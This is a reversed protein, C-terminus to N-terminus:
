CTSSDNRARGVAAAGAAAAAAAVLWAPAACALVRSFAGCVARSYIEQVLYPGTQGAGHTAHPHTEQVAAFLLSTAVRTLWCSCPPSKAQQKPSSQELHLVTQTRRGAAPSWAAPLMRCTGAPPCPKHLPRTNCRKGTITTHTTSTCVSTFPLAMLLMLEQSFTHSTPTNVLLHRLQQCVTNGQTCRLVAPLAQPRHAGERCYHPKTDSATQKHRYM